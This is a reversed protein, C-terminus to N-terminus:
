NIDNLRVETVDSTDSLTLLNAVVGMDVVDANLDVATAPWDRCTSCKLKLGNDRVEHNVLKM